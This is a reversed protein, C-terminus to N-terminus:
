AYGSSGTPVPFDGPKPRAPLLLKQWEARTKQIFDYRHPSRAKLVEPITLFAMIAEAFDEGPGGTVMYESIPQETLTKDNWNDKTIESETQHAPFLGPSGKGAGLNTLIGERRPPPAMKGKASAETSRAIPLVGGHTIRRYVTLIGGGFSAGAEPNPVVDGQSNFEYDQEFFWVQHVPPTGGFEEALREFGELIAEYVESAGGPDWPKWQSRELDKGHPM